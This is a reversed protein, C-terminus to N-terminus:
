GIISRLMVVESHGMIKSQPDNKNEDIDEAIGLWNVSVETPFVNPLNCAVSKTFPWDMELREWL